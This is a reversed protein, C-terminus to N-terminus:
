SLTQCPLRYISKLEGCKYLTTIQTSAKETLEFWERNMKRILLGNRVVSSNSVTYLISATTCLFRLGTSISMCLGAQRVGVIRGHDVDSLDCKRWEETNLIM